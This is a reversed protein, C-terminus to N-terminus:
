EDTPGKTDTLARARELVDVMRLFAALDVKAEDGLESTWAEIASDLDRLAELLRECEARAEDRENLADDLREGTEIRGGKEADREMRARYRGAEAKEARAIADLYGVALPVAWPADASPVPGEEIIQDALKRAAEHDVESAM